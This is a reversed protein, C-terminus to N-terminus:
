SGGKRISLSQVCPVFVSQPFNSSGGTRVLHLGKQSAWLHNLLIRGCFFLNPFLCFISSNPNRVQSSNSRISSLFFIWAVSAPKAWNKFASRMNQFCMYIGHIPIKSYVNFVFFLFIVSLLNMSKHQFSKASRRLFTFYSPMQVSIFEVVSKFIQFPSCAFFIFFVFAFVCSKLIVFFFSLLCVMFECFFCYFSKSLKSVGLEKRSILQTLNKPTRSAGDHFNHIPATPFTYLSSADDSEATMVFTVLPLEGNTLREVLKSDYPYIKDGVLAHVGTSAVLARRVAELCEYSM